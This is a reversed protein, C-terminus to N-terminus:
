NISQFINLAYILANIFILVPNKSHVPLRIIKVKMIKNKFIEITWALLLAGAHDHRNAVLIVPLFNTM